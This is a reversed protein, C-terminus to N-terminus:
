PNELFLAEYNIPHAQKLPEACHPWLKALFSQPNPNTLPMVFSLHLHYKARTAAVYFLRTKELQLSKQESKKCFQYIGDHEQQTQLPAFLLHAGKTKHPIEQLKFLEPLHPPPAKELGPIFVENFELGKAKHITMIQVAKPNPTLPPFTKNLLRPLALHLLQENANLTSLLQFFSQAAQEDEKKVFLQEGGLLLFVEEVYEHFRLKGQWQFAKKLLTVLRAVAHAGAQSLTQNKLVVMLKDWVTEAEIAAIATLDSLSLGAFPGRLLAFWHLTDALQWLALTLTTLDVVIPHTALCDIEHAQYAIKHEKLVQIIVPAQARAQLLIAISYENNQQRQIIKQAIHRAEQLSDSNVSFLCEKFREYFSSTTVKKEVDAPSYCIAGTKIDNKSPFLPTFIDNFWHILQQTSRFNQTLVLSTLLVDGVGERCARIFLGVNAQRFRYISQMPDGVLFLTRGDNPQWGAVLKELLRFQSLSTDQFEDILIHKLQYDLKLALDTPNGVDGLSQNALLAVETFDLVQRKQFVLKLQALLVPLLALLASLDHWNKDNYSLPPLEQIEALLHIFESESSLNLLLAQFKDKMTKAIKKEDGTLKSPAIFGEFARGVKRLEGTKTLLWNALAQWKPLSALDSLPLQSNREFASLVHTDGSKKLNDLAYNLLYVMEHRYAPPYKKAIKQLHQENVFVLAKELLPKLNDINAAPILYPIWQDRTSLINSTLELFKPLNNDLSLLMTALAQEWPPKSTFSALLAKAAEYYCENPEQTIEGICGAEPSLAVLEACFADITKINFSVAGTLLGWNKAKDRALAKQALQYTNLEHPNDPPAQQGAAMAHMVRAQMESAAKKTFTIALIERPHEVVALLTLIRQVLLTTKGSGAPAQVIFSQTETLAQQRAHPM